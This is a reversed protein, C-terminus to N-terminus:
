GPHASVTTDWEQSRGNPYALRVRPVQRVDDVVPPRPHVWGGSYATSAVAKVVVSPM